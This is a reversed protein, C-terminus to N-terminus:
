LVTHMRAVLCACASARINRTHLRVYKCIDNTCVRERERVCVKAVYQAAATLTMEAVKKPESDGEVGIYFQVLNDKKEIM